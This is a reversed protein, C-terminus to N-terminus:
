KEFKEQLFTNLYYLFLWINILTHSFSEIVSIRILKIDSMLQLVSDKIINKFM